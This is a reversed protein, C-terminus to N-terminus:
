VSGQLDVLLDGVNVSKNLLLDVRNGDQREVWLRELRRKCSSASRPNHQNANISVRATRVRRINLVVVGFRARVCDLEHCALHTPVATVENPDEAQGYHRDQPRAVLTEQCAGLRGMALYEVRLYVRLVSFVESTRDGVRPLQ